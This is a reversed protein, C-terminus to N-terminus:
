AYAVECQKENYRKLCLLGLLSFLVYFDLYFIPSMSCGTLEILWLCVAPTAGGLGAAVSYCMSFGTQRINVPFLFILISLIPTAYMGLVIALIFYSVISNLGLLYVVPSVCVIFLVQIVLSVNEPKYVRFFLFSIFGSVLMTFILLSYIPISVKQQINLFVFFVYFLANSAAILSFTIVSIKKHRLIIDLIPVKSVKKGSTYELYQKSEEVSNRLIPLMMSMVLGIIFPIRWGWSYFQAEPIFNYCLQFIFSGTAGGLIAIAFHLSLVAVVQDKRVSEAILVIAGVEGGFSLGQFIRLVVLLIPSIVGISSVLPLFAIGGVSLILLTASIFLSIKRGYKDGIYGFLLSGFPRVLFAIAFTAFSLILSLNESNVQSFFMQSFIHGFNGYVLFDYCEIFACLFVSIIAKKSSGHSM